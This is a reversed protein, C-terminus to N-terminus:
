RQALSTGSEASKRKPLKRSGSLKKDKPATRFWWAYCVETLTEKNEKVIKQIDANRLKQGEIFGAQYVFDITAISSLLWVALGVLAAKM